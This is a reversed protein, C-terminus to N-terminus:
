ALDLRNSVDEFDPDDAYIREFESVARKHQGLDEYTLARTYRIERLLGADRDKTKKLAASLVDRAATHLGLVRLAKGQYLMLATHVASENEIGGAMTNVKKAYERNDPELTMLLEALSLKVVVDGPLERRLKMLMDAAEQYAGTTQWVEVLALEAAIKGATLEAEVGDRIKLKITISIGYRLMQAGLEPAYALAAKLGAIADEWRKLLIAVVGAMFAADPQDLHKRFFSFAEEPKNAAYAKLGDVLDREHKPTVLRKFFGPSLRQRVQASSATGGAGGRAGLKKTYFL